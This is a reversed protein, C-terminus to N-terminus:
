HVWVRRAPSRGIRWLLRRDLQASQLIRDSKEDQAGAALEGVLPCGAAILMPRQKIISEREDAGIGADRRRLQGTKQHQILRAGAIEDVRELGLARDSAAPM